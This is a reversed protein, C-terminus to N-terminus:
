YYFSWAISSFATYHHCTACSHGKSGAIFFHPVWWATMCKLKLGETLIHQVTSCLLETCDSLDEISIHADDDLLERVTNIADENRASRPRGSRQNDDFSTRTQSEFEGYLRYVTRLSVSQDGWAKCVFRHADIAPM